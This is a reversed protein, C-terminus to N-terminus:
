VVILHDRVGDNWTQIRKLVGGVNIYANTLGAGPAAGGIVRWYPTSPGLEMLRRFGTNTTIDLVHVGYADGIQTDFGMNELYLGTATTALGTGVAGFWKGHFCRADTIVGSYGAIWPQVKCATLETLVSGVGGAAGVTFNLGNITGAAAGGAQTLAAIAYVGIVSMGNALSCAAPNFYFGYFSGATIQTPSAVFGYNTPSDYRAWYAYAANPVAPAAINANVVGVGDQQYTGGLWANPNANQLRRLVAGSAADEEITDPDAGGADTEVYTDNDGDQIRSQVAPAGGTDSLVMWANLTANFICIAFYHDDILAINADGVCLMQGAGGQAHRITITDGTDPRVVCIDGDTANGVALNDLDDAIGAQASLSHHSRTPTATGGVIGILTPPLGLFEPISVGDEQVVQAGGRSGITDVEFIDGVALGLRNAATRELVIDVAGAGSGWRMVGNGLVELRFNADGIARMAFIIQAAIDGPARTLELNPVGVDVDPNTMLVPGDQANIQRGAGAGGQDYAQDLTNAGAGAATDEYFFCRNDVIGIVDGGAVTVLALPISNAPYPGGLNNALNGANNIFIYNVGNPLGPVNTPAAFNFVTQDIRARGAAVDVANAGADTVRFARGHDPADVNHHFPAYNNTM